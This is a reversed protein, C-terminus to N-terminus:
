EGKEGRMKGERYFWKVQMCLLPLPLPLPPFLYFPSLSLKPLSLYQSPFPLPLPLSLTFPSHPFLYVCLLLYNHLYILFTFFYSSYSLFLPFTFISAHFPFSFLLFPFPSFIYILYFPSPQHYSPLLLLSCIIHFLSLSIFLHSNFHTLSHSHSLNM